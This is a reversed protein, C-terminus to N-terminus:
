PSELYMVAHVYFWPIEGWDDRTHGGLIEGTGMSVAFYREAPGDPGLPINHAISGQRWYEPTGPGNEWMCCVRVLPTMRATRTFYSEVTAAHVGAVRYRATLVRLQSSMEPGCELFELHEPKAGVEALFDGCAPPEARAPTSPFLGALCVLLFLARFFRACINM